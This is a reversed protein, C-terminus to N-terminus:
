RGAARTARPAERRSATAALREALREALMLTPLYPNTAPIEPFVSADVVFLDRYGVVSGDDDVVRSMACTSTAHYVGDPPEGVVVDTVLHRFAPHALLELALDVGADLRRRDHDSVAPEVVPEGIDIGVRGRGTPTLLVVLLMALGRTDPGLHNLPHIHLDGRALLAATVLGHREVDVGPALTLTVPVAPHNRLGDGLGASEVGSRALVVPSGIAGAAVVVSDAEVTTGDALVVGTARRGDLAIAEVATDPLIELGPRPGPLYADAASVRRGGRRTLPVLTADPAAALLARDLPGLEDNRAPERPVLVRDFATAAGAWGWSAYQALDGPTALMGNVASSGGMGRGRLFPGPFVRGPAGIADFFSAGGTENRSGAPGAEVLTVRHGPADALRRAVVCGASGGGVVVWHTV